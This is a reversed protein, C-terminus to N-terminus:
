VPSPEPETVTTTCSPSEAEVIPEIRALCPTTRLLEANVVAAASFGRDRPSRAQSRCSRLCMSADRATASISLGM